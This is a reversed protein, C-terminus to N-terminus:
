PTVTSLAAPAALAVVVVASAELDLESCFRGLGGMEYSFETPVDSDRAEGRRAGRRPAVHLAGNGM